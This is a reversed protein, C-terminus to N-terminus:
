APVDPTHAFCCSQEISLKLCNPLLIYFLLWVSNGGSKLRACLTDMSIDQWCINRETLWGYLATRRDSIQKLTVYHYISSTQDKWWSPNKGHILSYLYSPNPPSCSKGESGLKLTQYLSFSFTEEMKLWHHCFASGHCGRWLFHAPDALPVAQSFFVFCELNSIGVHKLSMVCWLIEVCSLVLIRCYVANKSDGHNLM